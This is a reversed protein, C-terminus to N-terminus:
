VKEVTVVTDMWRQQGGIPDPSNIITWNPHEGKDKWWKLKLDKEDDRGGRSKKGSAYRGYEWHGCHYSIAIVGPVIGETIRAKTIIEGVKSKVKIKDGNKIGLKNATEPNIWGPNKHYIETLWKCNQTRSHTQVNVKYTTLMLENGKLGQHEPIPLYSPLPSFGKIKLLESYIEFKGSKNVKDPPFGKYVKNGVKQGVYLKYAKKTTTYDEGEKGKWYVGTKEDLIAGKLEDGKIEKEHQKYKPKANKDHWVGVKKMFEFGGAEKIGPTVNCGDKVFEEASSFGFNIGLKKGIELFVDALNRAEGLPKIFPQRIYYEPIQGFSVMDELTWRELYTTDPIIIDALSTSESYYIDSSIVFPIMKEDKLVEINESCEGNVYVPNYCYILYIKPRGYRGDKIM